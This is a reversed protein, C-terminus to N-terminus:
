AYSLTLKISIDKIELISPDDFEFSGGISLMIDLWLDNFKTIENVPTNDQRIVGAIM